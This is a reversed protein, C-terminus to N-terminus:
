AKGQGGAAHRNLYTGESATSRFAGLRKEAWELADSWRYVVIRGYKRYLPGGGRSALSALTHRSTPYGAESLLKACQTRNLLACPSLQGPQVPDNTSCNM